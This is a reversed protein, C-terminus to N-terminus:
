PKSVSNQLTSIHLNMQAHLLRWSVKCYREQMSESEVFTTKGSHFSWTLETVKDLPGTTIIYVATYQQIVSYLACRQCIHHDVFSNFDPSTPIFKLVSHRLEMPGHPAPHCPSLTIVLNHDMPEHYTGRHKNINTTLWRRRGIQVQMGLESHEVQELLPLSPLLSQIPYAPNISHPGQSAKFIKLINQEKEM